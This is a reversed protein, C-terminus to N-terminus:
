QALRQYRGPYNSTAIISDAEDFYVVVASFSTEACVWCSAAIYTDFAAYPEGFRNEHCAELATRKADVMM